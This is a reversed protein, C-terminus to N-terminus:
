FRWLARVHVSRPVTLTQSPLLEPALEAHRRELLNEGSISLRLGPMPSLAYGLDLATYAAIPVAAPNGEQASSARRLRADLEHGKGLSLSSRLMLQHRPASSSLAAANGQQIPDPADTGIRASLRSYAAQVRWARTARWDLALELGRTTGALGNDPTITQVVYFVPSPVFQQAALGASRLREYRNSFAALDLSFNANFQHRYGFEFARVAEALLDHDARPVNRLLVAPLPPSAPTVTLDLQADREARSPTRVARSLAAWVTQTRSPTWALRAHPQPESGTANNKELRLGLTARLRDPLLTIEDNVFVSALTFTRQGPTIGIIGGSAIRDRSRRYTAGWIVDHSGALRPRHQIDIDVTRRREDLAGDVQVTSDDVYGQVITESGDSGLRQFSALLHGGRGRQTQDVLLSGTAAAPTPVNWRDGNVTDLLAGSLSLGDGGPLTWDARFGARSTRWADNGPAGAADELGRHSESRAWLRVDGDPMATGWRVTASGREISGAGLAVLTGRTDRAKRTLINIVGNVANAGWLAAGPGRIVEIRDIDELPTSEMEWLVGSFLPSYISRGDMLVLLKNAFRGNFGRASVAWRGSSLRAVQVGPALRLLEPLSTAGSREIDERTIVFVAAAVGQVAQSKRSATVVDAKLLDELSLDPLDAPDAVAPTGATVAAALAIARWIRGPEHNM